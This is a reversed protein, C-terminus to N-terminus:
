TVPDAGEPARGAERELYLTVPGDNVLEVDMTAGFEGAEVTIGYTRLLLLFREYL